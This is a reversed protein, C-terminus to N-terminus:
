TLHKLPLVCTLNVLLSKYGTNGNHYFFIIVQVEKMIALMSTIRQHAHLNTKQAKSKLSIRKNNFMNDLDTLSM